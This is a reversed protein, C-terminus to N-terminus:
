WLSALLASDLRQRQVALDNKMKEVGSKGAVAKVAQRLSRWRGAHRPLRLKDLAQLLDGAVQNIAKCAREIELSDASAVVGVALSHDEASTVLRNNLEIVTRSTAYLDAHEVLLGDPSNRLKNGKSVIKTAYEVFQCVNAALSLATLPDM